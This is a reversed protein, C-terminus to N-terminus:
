LKLYSNKQEGFFFKMNKNTNQDKCDCMVKIVNGKHNM